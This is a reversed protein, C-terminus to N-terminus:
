FRRGGGWSIWLGGLLVMSAHFEWFRFGWLFQNFKITLRCFSILALSQVSSFYFSFWNGKWVNESNNIVAYYSSWVCM